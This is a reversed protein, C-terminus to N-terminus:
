QTNLSPYKMHHTGNNTRTSEDDFDLDLHSFLRHGVGLDAMLKKFNGSGDDLVQCSSNGYINHLKTSDIIVTTLNSTDESLEEDSNDVLEEDSNPELKVGTWYHEM